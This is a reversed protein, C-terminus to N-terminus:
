NHRWQLPYERHITISVSMVTGRFSARRKHPSNKVETSSIVPHIPTNLLESANNKVDESVTSKGM